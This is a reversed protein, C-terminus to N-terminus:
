FISDLSSLKVVSTKLIDITENKSNLKFLVSVKEKSVTIVVGVLNDYINKSDKVLVIDNEIVIGKSEQISSQFERVESESFFYPNYTNPFVEHIVRSKALLQAHNEYCFCKVYACSPNELCDPVSNYVLEIFDKGMLRRLEAAVADGDPVSNAISMHVWCSKRSPIAVKKPKKKRKAVTM